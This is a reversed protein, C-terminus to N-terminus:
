QTSIYKQNNNLIDILLNFTDQIIKEDKVKMLKSLKDMSRNEQNSYFYFLKLMNTTDIDMLNYLLKVKENDIINMNANLYNNILTDLELMRVSKFKCRLKKRLMNLDEPGMNKLTSFERLFTFYKRM